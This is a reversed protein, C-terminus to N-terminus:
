GKIRQLEQDIQIINRTVRSIRGFQVHWTDAKIDQSSRYGQGVHWKDAPALTRVTEVTVGRYDKVTDHHVHGTYWIRHITNAWDDARDGAMILPLDAPKGTDGHTVGVLCAGHRIYHHKTPATDIFVRPEREYMIALMTSLIVSIQADHNGTACVVTVKDHTALSMDITKRFVSLGAQLVKPWRGDVDVPTGKTTTGRDGDAHFYDGVNVIACHAAKPCSDLLSAIGQVTVAEAIKLDYSAGTEPAWAHMGMHADGIPVVTMNDQANLDAGPALTPKVIGRYDEAMDKLALLFEELRKDKDRDTKIWQAKIAGDSGVFQSVGKISYGPPVDAQGYDHEQPDVIARKKRARRERRDKADCVRCHVKSPTFNDSTEGCRTCTKM